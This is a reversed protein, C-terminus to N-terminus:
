DSSCQALDMHMGHTRGHPRLPSSTVCGCCISRSSTRIVPTARVLKDLLEDSITEKSAAPGQAMNRAQATFAGIPARLAPMAARALSSRALRALM